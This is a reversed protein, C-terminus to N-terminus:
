WGVVAFPVVSGLHAIRLILELVAWAYYGALLGLPQSIVGLLTAIFGILMALPILPAVLLNTLPAILSFQRFILVSLPITAIQASLTATLSERISLTDPISKLVKKLHPGIESLGLTALFSLQFSVDYQLSLPNYITMLVATWLILLRPTTKREAELAFLGLIGMITARVVPAGAGVFLAFTSIGLILPILRKQRPLFFLLGSLLSLIITINFGSIAVIHSLGSRRFDDSVSKSLGTRSGTLLGTLLSAHPEPLILTIQREFWERLPILVRLPSLRVSLPTKEAVNALSMRGRGVLATIGKVRLYSPYDFTDFAKPQELTGTVRIIDGFHYAPFTAYDSVLIRGRVPIKKTSTELSHVDITYRTVTPKREPADVIWGTIIANEGQAYRAISAPSDISTSQIVIFLSLLSGIIISLLRELIQFKKNYWAILVLTTSLLGISALVHHPITSIVFFRQLFVGTLLSILLVIITPTRHMM